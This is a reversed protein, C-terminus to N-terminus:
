FLYKRIEEPIDYPHKKPDLRVSQPDKVTGAVWDERSDFVLGRDVDVVRGDKLEAATHHGWPRGPIGVGPNTDLAKGRKPDM